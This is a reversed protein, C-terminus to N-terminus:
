AAPDDFSSRGQRWLNVERELLGEAYTREGFQVVRVDGKLLYVGGCAKIIEESPWCPAHTPASKSLTSSEGSELQLEKPLRLVLRSTADGRLYGEQDEFFSRAERATRAIVFWDEDHDATELWYLKLPYRTPSRSAQKM